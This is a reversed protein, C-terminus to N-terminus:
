EHLEWVVFQLPHNGLLVHIIRYGLKLGHGSSFPLEAGSEGRLRLLHELIHKLV